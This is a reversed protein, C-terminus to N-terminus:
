SPRRAKFMRAIDYEALGALTDGARLPVVHSIAEDIRKYVFWVDPADREGARLQEAAVWYTAAEPHHAWVRDVVAAMQAETIEVSRLKANSGDSAPLREIFAYRPPEFRWNACEDDTLAPLRDLARARVRLALMVTRLADAELEQGRYVPSGVENLASRLVEWHVAVNGLVRESFKITTWPNCQDGVFYEDLYTVLADITADDLSKKAV